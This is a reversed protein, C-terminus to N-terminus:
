PLATQTVTLTQNAITITGVRQIGTNNAAVRYQVAGSGSFFNGKTITLWPVNSVATWISGSTVTVKVVCRRRFAKNLTQSTPAVTVAAVDNISITGLNSNLQGDWAAFTFSDSATYNPDPFYTAITGNLGVSGHAPQSVIRLTLPKHEPDSASLRITRLAGGSSITYANKAVPPSNNTASENSPGNHCTYCGIRYGRWFSKAGFANFTRNAQAYSLVTGTYDTGHCTRCQAAGNDEAIDHHRSIWTQGIPHMGHPGGDVTDPMAAHCSLCEVLVGEHGQHQISYLNDNEDLTPFEAHTSGHCAECYLGGHGQSFRYLSLGAAPTNPNTAFTANVAQRLQDGSVFASTYRIQGNNSTATGTHCNQCTPEDLWGTRTTAGVTTMSGHCSQCQMAMSGDAAIAKGMAGRLCRTESGPHCRYCASRNTDANLTLNNTPDIVDAHLSHVAQTLPSIGAQGSGPLAESLHCSACLVPKNDTVVSTYLGGANYGATALAQQYTPSSLDHEDHLRLINLRYDRQANPDSVWGASPQAAPGSGSAHCVRCDMEDSVPLVIDKTALVTNGSKAMLRMLPYANRQGADDIPTIPIGYAAFWNSGGEFQMTQPTNAAGPMSFSNPGPVPLGVDVALVVGFLPQVYQWFNTKNASTTNISGTSDAVAQYTVTIGNPLSLLNGQDDIVQAHITNYPPLISFVSFDADLCHMGLNNWGVVTYAANVQPAALAILILLPIGVAGSTMQCACRNLTSHFPKESKMATGGKHSAKPFLRRLNFFSKM